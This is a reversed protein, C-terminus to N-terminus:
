PSRYENGLFQTAPRLDKFLWCTPLLNVALKLFHSETQVSCVRFFLKLCNAKEGSFNKDRDRLGDKIWGPM